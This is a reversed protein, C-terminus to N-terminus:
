ALELIEHAQTWIRSSKKQKKQAKKKNKVPDPTVL